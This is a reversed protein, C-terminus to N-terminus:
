KKKGLLRTFSFKKKKKEVGLKKSEKQRDNKDGVNNCVSTKDKLMQSNSIEKAKQNDKAKQANRKMIRAPSCRPLLRRSSRSPSACASASAGAGAGAGAVVGVSHGVTDDGASLVPDIVEYGQQEVEHTAPRLPGIYRLFTLKIDEPNPADALIRCVDAIKLGYMSSGNILALQDGTIVPDERSAIAANGSEFIRGVWCCDENNEFIVLLLM